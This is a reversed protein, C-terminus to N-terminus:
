ETPRPSADGAGALDRVLTELGDRLQEFRGPGLLTAVHLEAERAQTNIAQELRRGKPTLRVVRARGDSPDAERTLYGHAELHGLLDNVSQKTIQLQDALATPRLGDLTPYRFVAVHAPNLDDYGAAVVGTYLQERVWQWVVRLMAGVYPGGKASDSSM